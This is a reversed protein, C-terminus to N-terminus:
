EKIFFAHKTAFPFRQIRVNSIGVTDQIMETVGPSDPYALSGMHVVAGKPMRPWMLELTQREVEYVSTHLNLLSCMTEPHQELFAPLTEVADGKILQVKPFQRFIQADNFLKAASRVFDESYTAAKSAFKDKDERDSLAEYAGFTDFGFIQRTYNRHEFIESFLAYSFLTNGNLVGLQVISGHVNQIMKFIEYYVLFRTIEQSRVFCPWNYLIFEPVDAHQRVQDVYRELIEMEENRYKSFDSNLIDTKVTM